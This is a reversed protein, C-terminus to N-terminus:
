EAADEEPAEDAEGSQREAGDSSNTDPKEDADAPPTYTVKVRDEPDDSSVANIRQERIDYVLIESAIRNGGESIEADGSFEIVGKAVDYHLRQAEAYTSEEAGPRQFRFTAPSGEITAVQLQFETFRMNATACEIHGENVDFVVNGAFDWTSDNFDTSTTHAVDATISIGGQTLKLGTFRVMSSEGIYELNEADIDVPMRMSDVQALVGGSVVLLALTVRAANPRCSAM